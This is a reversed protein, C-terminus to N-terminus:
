ASPYQNFASYVGDFCVSLSYFLSPFLCIPKDIFIHTIYVSSRKIHSKIKKQMEPTSIEEVKFHHDQVAHQEANKM